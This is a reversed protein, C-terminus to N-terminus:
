IHKSIEAICYSYIADEYIESVSNLQKNYKNIYVLTEKYFENHYLHIDKEQFGKSKCLDKLYKIADEKSAFYEDIYLNDYALYEQNKKFILYIKEM